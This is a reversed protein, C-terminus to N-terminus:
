QNRIQYYNFRKFLKCNGYVNKFKYDLEKSLRTFINKRNKQLKIKETIKENLLIFLILKKENSCIFDLCYYKYCQKTKSIKIINM